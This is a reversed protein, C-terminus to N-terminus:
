VLLKTKTHRNWELRRGHQLDLYRVKKGQPIPINNIYATLCTRRRLTFIVYHFKAININIRCDQLWTTLKIIQNQLNLIMEESTDCSSLLLTLLLPHANHRQFTLQTFTICSQHSLIFCSWTTSRVLFSRFRKSYKTINM